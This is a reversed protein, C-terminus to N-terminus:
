AALLTMRLFRSCASMSYSRQKLPRRQGTRRPHYDIRRCAPLASRRSQRSREGPGEGRGGSSTSAVQQFYELANEPAAVVEEVTQVRAARLGEQTLLAARDLRLRSRALPPEVAAHKCPKSLGEGRGPPRPAM